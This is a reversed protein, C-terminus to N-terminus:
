VVLLRLGLVMPILRVKALLGAPTKPAAMSVYRLADEAARLFTDSAAAAYTSDGTPDVGFGAGEAGAAQAYRVCERILRADPVVVKTPKSRPKNLTRKM